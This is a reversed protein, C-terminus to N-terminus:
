GNDSEEETDKDKEKELAEHKSTFYQVAVKETASNATYSIVVCMAADDVGHTLATLGTTIDPRLIAIVLTLIRYVAWFILVWKSLKKSFQEFNKAQRKRTAM